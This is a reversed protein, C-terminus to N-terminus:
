CHCAHARVKKLEGSQGLQKLELILSEEEALSIQLEEVVAAQQQLVELQVLEEALSVRIASLDGQHHHAPQTAPPPPPPPHRPLACGPVPAQPSAPSSNREAYM